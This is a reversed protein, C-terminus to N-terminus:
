HLLIPVLIDDEVDYYEPHSSQEYQFIVSLPEKSYNKLVFLMTNIIESPRKYFYKHEKDADVHMNCAEEIFDGNSRFFLIRPVYKGDPQFKKEEIDADHGMEAKIMVFRDSLDMLRVSKFFKQKLKQCSPCQAKYILLFIPKNVARAEQFGYAFSKWKFLQEFSIANNSSGTNILNNGVIQNALAIINLAGLFKICKNM